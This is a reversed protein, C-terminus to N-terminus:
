RKWLFGNERSWESLIAYNRVSDYKHINKYLKKPTLAMGVNMGAFYKAISACTYWTLPFWSFKHRTKVELKIGAIVDPMELFDVFSKDVKRAILGSRNFTFVMKDKERVVYVYRYTKDTYFAPKNTCKGKCFIFYYIM